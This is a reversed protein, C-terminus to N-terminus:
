KKLKCVKASKLALASQRLYIILHSERWSLIEKKNKTCIQALSVIMVFLMLTLTVPAKFLYLGRQNVYPLIEGDNNITFSLKPSTSFRVYTNREPEGYFCMFTTAPKHLPSYGNTETAQDLMFSEKSCHSPFGSIQSVTHWVLGLSAGMILEWLLLM